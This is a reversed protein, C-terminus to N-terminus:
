ERWWLEGVFCELLPLRGHLSQFTLCACMKSLSSGRRCNALSSIAFVPLGLRSVSQGRSCDRTNIPGPNPLPRSGPAPRPLLCSPPFTGACRPPMFPSRPRTRPPRPLSPTSSRGDLHHEFVELEKLLKLQCSEYGLVEGSGYILEM